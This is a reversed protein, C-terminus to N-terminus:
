AEEKLIALRQNVSKIISNREPIADEPYCTVYLRGNNNWFKGGLGFIGRFRYETCGKIQLYVFHHREQESAGCHKALVDYIKHALSEKIQTM